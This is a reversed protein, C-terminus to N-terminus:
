QAGLPNKTDRLMALQTGYGRGRKQLTEGQLAHSTSTRYGAWFLPIEAISTRYGIFVLCFVQSIGRQSAIEVLYQAIRPGLAVSPGAEPNMSGQLIKQPKKKSSNKERVSAGRGSGVGFCVRFSGSVSGFRVWVSGFQGSVSRFPGSVSRFPGLISGFHILSEPTPRGPPQDPHPHRRPQLPFLFDSRM